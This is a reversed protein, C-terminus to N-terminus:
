LLTLTALGSLSSESRRPPLRHQTPTHVWSAPFPETFKATFFDIRTSINGVGLVDFSYCL